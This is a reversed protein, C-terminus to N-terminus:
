EKPRKFYFHAKGEADTTVGVLEWGEEGLENWAGRESLMVNKKFMARNLYTVTKDVLECYEWKQM